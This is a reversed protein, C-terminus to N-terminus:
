GDDHLDFLRLECACRGIGVRRVVFAAVLGVFSRHLELQANELLVVLFGCSDRQGRVFTEAIFFAFIEIGYFLYLREHSLVAHRRGKYVRQVRQLMRYVRVQRKPFIWRHRFRKRRVFVLIPVSVLKVFVFVLVLYVFNVAFLQDKQLHRQKGRRLLLM